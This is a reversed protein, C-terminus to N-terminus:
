FIRIPPFNRRKLFPLELMSQFHSDLPVPSIDWMPSQAQRPVLLRETGVLLPFELEESVFLDLLFGFEQPVPQTQLALVQETTPVSLIHQEPLDVGTLTSLVLSFAM